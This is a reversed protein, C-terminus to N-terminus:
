NAHTILHHPTFNPSLKERMKDFSRIIAWAKRKVFRRHNKKGIEFSYWKIVKEYQLHFVVSVISPKLSTEKRSLINVQCNQLKM